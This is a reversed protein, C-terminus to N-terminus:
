QLFIWHGSERATACSVGHKSALAPSSLIKIDVILDYLKYFIVLTDNYTMDRIAIM